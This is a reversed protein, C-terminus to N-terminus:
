FSQELGMVEWGAVNIIAGITSESLAEVPDAIRANILKIAKAKHETAFAPEERGRLNALHGTTFGLIVHVPTPDHVAVNAYLWGMRRFVNGTVIEDMLSPMVWAVLSRTLVRLGFPRM